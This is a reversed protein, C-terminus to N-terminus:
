PNESVKHKLLTESLLVHVLGGQVCQLAVIKNVQLLKHSELRRLHYPFTGVLNAIL